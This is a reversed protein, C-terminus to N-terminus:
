SGPKKQTDISTVQQVVEVLSQPMMRDVYAKDVKVRLKPGVLTEGDLEAEVVIYACGAPLSIPGLGFGLMLQYGTADPVPAAELSQPPPMEM